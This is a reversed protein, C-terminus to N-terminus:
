LEQTEFVGLSTIVFLITLVLSMLLAGGNPTVAKGTGLQSGWAILGGPALSGLNPIYQALMLLVCLGFGIGGAAATSKGLTSGLLTLAIFPLLWAFMLLSLLLFDGFSVGGFLYWTYYYGGLCAISFALLYVLVQAFFKSLLDIGAMTAMAAPFLARFGIPQDSNPDLGFCTRIDRRLLYLISFRGTLGISVRPNFFFFGIQEMISNM